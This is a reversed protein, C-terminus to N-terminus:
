GVLPFDYVPRSNIKYALYGDPMNCGSEILRKVENTGYCQEGVWAYVPGNGTMVQWILKRISERQKSAFVMVAAVEKASLEPAVALISRASQDTLCRRLHPTDATIRLVEEWVPTLKKSINEFDLAFPKLMYM